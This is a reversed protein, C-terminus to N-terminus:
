SPPEREVDRSREDLLSRDDFDRLPPPPPVLLKSPLQVEADNPRVVQESLVEPTTAMEPPRITESPKVPVTLPLPDTRPTQAPLPRDAVTM